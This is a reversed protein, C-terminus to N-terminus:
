PLYRSKNFVGVEEHFYWLQGVREYNRTPDNGIKEVWWVGDMGYEPREHLYQASWEWSIYSPQNMEPNSKAIAIVRDATYRPVDAKPEPKACVMTFVLGIVVFPVLIMLWHLRKM